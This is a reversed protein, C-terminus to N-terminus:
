MARVRSVRARFIMQMRGRIVFGGEGAQIESIEVPVGDPKGFVVYSAGANLADAAAEVQSILPNISLGSM